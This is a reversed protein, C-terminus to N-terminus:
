KLDVTIDNHPKRRFCLQWRVTDVPKFHLSSNVVGTGKGLDPSALLVATPGDAGGIFAIAAAEGELDESEPSAMRRPEESPVSDRLLISGAPLSPEVSYTMTCFCGPLVMGSLPRGSQPLEQQSLSEVTLRHSVGTDPHVFEFSEGQVRVEFCPGPITAPPQSLQLALKRLPPRKGTIWRFAARHITWPEQRNVGYHELVQRAVADQLMAEPLLQGPLYHREYGREQSLVAGNVIIRPQFVLAMPNEEELAQHDQHTQEPDEELEQLKDIYDRVKGADFRILFDVVLGESCAYVAPVHWQAGAWTFSVGVPIEKGARGEQHDLSGKYTVRWPQPRTVPPAWEDYEEPFRLRTYDFESQLSHLYGYPDEVPEVGLEAIRSLMVQADVSPHVSAVFSMFKERDWAWAQEIAAADKCFLLLGLFDRFNRAVPFVYEGPLNMPSVSFVMEGLGRIRCFHIGDVGTWALVKAGVPTCFYTSKEPGRALGINGWNPVAECFRQYLDM